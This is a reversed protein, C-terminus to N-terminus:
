FLTTLSPRLVTVNTPLGLPPSLVASYKWPTVHELWLLDWIGSAAGHRSPIESLLTPNVPVSHLPHSLLLPCFLCQIHPTLFTISYKTLAKAKRQLLQSVVPCSLM